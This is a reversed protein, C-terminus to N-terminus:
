GDVLHPIWVFGVHLCKLSKGPVNRFADIESLKDTVCDLVRELLAFGQAPDLAFSRAACTFLGNVRACDLSEDRFAHQQRGLGRDAEPVEALQGLIVLALTM